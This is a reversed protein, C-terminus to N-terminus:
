DNENGAESDSPLFIPFNGGPTQGLQIAIPVLKDKENLYLLCLPAVTYRGEQCKLGDLLYLDLLWVRNNAIEQQLTHDKRLFPQVMENPVPFKDPLKDM